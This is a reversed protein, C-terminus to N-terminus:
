VTDIFSKEAKNFIVFGVALLVCSVAFSYGLMAWDVTGGLIAARFTEIVATVPNLKLLLLLKGGFRSIPYVVPAAYMLLQVGFAVLYQLDRYKITLSTVIMGLGLGLNAMIIILLPLTILYGNVEFTYLGLAIYVAYAIALLLMQIGMKVMTSIVKALPLIVRPFYVKGFVAANTTFTSSTSVLCEAFYTWLVTGTLYFLLRPKHDTGINAINGFVIVYVLTTLLPQIFFWVPGLITQKYVAMLDRRVFIYLLDRYQILEKFNIDFLGSQPKIVITWDENSEKVYQTLNIEKAGFTAFYFFTGQIQAVMARM